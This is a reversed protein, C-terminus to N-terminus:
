HFNGCQLFLFYDTLSYSLEIWTQNKQAIDVFTIKTAVLEVVSLVAIMEAM